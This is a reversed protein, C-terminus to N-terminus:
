KLLVGHSHIPPRDWNRRRQVPAMREGVRPSTRRSTMQQHRRTPCLFLQFPQMELRGEARPEFSGLKLETHRDKPNSRDVGVPFGQSIYALSSFDCRANRLMDVGRVGHLSALITHYSSSPAPGFTRPPRTLSAIAEHTRLRRTGSMGVSRVPNVNLKNMTSADEM